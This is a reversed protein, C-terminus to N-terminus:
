YPLLDNHQMSAGKHRATSHQFIYHMQPWPLLYRTLAHLVAAPCATFCGVLEMRGRAKQALQHSEWHTRAWPQKDNYMENYM